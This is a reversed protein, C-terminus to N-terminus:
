GRSGGGGQARGAPAIRRHEGGNGEAREARRRSALGRRCHCARVEKRHRVLRGRRSLPKTLYSSLPM